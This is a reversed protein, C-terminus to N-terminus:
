SGVPFRSSKAQSDHARIDWRKHAEMCELNGHLYSFPYNQFSVPLSFSRVEWTQGNVTLRRLLPSGHKMIATVLEMDVIKRKSLRVNKIEFSATHLKTLVAGHKKLITQTCNATLSILLVPLPSSYRVLAHKGACLYVEELERCTMFLKRLSKVDLYADRMDLVRLTWSHRACLHDIISRFSINAGTNNPAGGDEDEDEDEDERLDQL